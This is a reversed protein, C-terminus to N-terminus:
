YGLMSLRVVSPFRRTALASQLCLNGTTLQQMWALPLLVSSSQRKLSLSLLSKTRAYHTRQGQSCAYVYHGYYKANNGLEAFAPSLKLKLKLGGVCWGGGVGPFYHWTTAGDQLSLSKLDEALSLNLIPGLTAIIGLVIAVVNIGAALPLARVGRPGFDIFM